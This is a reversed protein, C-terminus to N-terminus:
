YCRIVKYGEEILATIKDIVTSSVLGESQIPVFWSLEWGDSDIDYLECVVGNLSDFSGKKIRATKVVQQLKEILFEEM